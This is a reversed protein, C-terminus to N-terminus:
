NLAFKERPLSDIQACIRTAGVDKNLSSKEFRVNLCPLRLGDQPVPKRSTVPFRERSPDRRVPPRCEM